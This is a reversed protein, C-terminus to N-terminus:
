YRSWNSFAVDVLDTAAIKYDSTASLAILHDVCKESSAFSRELRCALIEINALLAKSEQISWNRNHFSVERKKCNLAVREMGEPEVVSM